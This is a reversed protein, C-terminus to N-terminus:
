TATGNLDDGLIEAATYPLEPPFTHRASGTEIAAL